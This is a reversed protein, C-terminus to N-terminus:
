RSSRWLEQHVLQKVLPMFTEIHPLGIDAEFVFTAPNPLQHARRVLDSKIHEYTNALSVQYSDLYRTRVSHYQLDLASGHLLPVRYEYVRAERGQRLLLYGEHTHIPLLGVPSFQIHSSLSRRLERGEELRLMLEPIAFDIVDRVVKLLESEQAKARVLEARELDVGIVGGILAENTSRFHEQLQALREAHVWLEDLHPYLKRESFRAHVRQLYGLLVYQKLELDFGPALLWDQELGHEAATTM